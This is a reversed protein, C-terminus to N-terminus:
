ASKRGTTSPGGPGEPRSADRVPRGAPQVGNILASRKALRSPNRSTHTFFSAAFGVWEKLSLTTDTAVARARSSPNLVIAHAEVPLRALETAACPAASPSSDYTNM